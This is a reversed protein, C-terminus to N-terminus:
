KKRRSKDVEFFNELIKIVRFNQEIFAFHTANEIEAIGANKMISEAYKAEEISVESDLSGWILLTPCDIEKLENTLDQNVVNVLIERMVPSAERYDSSGVKTKVWDELLNIIPVKKLFKFLKLKFSNNTEKKRFPAGLLVLKDVKNKAAYAIAVRGGFSHGILIPNNIKLKNLLIEIIERYNYITFAEKPTESKGFGPLDINTINFYKELKKGITDMVFINQGWGHLLIINKGKKNGYQVYNIELDKIKM